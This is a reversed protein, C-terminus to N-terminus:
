SNKTIKALLSHILMMYRILDYQNLPSILAHQPLDKDSEIMKNLTDLMEEISNISPLNEKNDDKPNEEERSQCYKVPYINGEEDVRLFNDYHKACSLLAQNGGWITIEGCACTVIDGIAESEITSNCLKCKARNRL